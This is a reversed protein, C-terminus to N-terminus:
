RRSLSLVTNESLATGFFKVEDMLGSFYRKDSYNGAWARGIYLDGGNGLPVLHTTLRSQLKGNLFIQIESGTYVCTVQQWQASIVSAATSVVSYTSGTGVAFQLIGAGNMQLTWGTDRRKYWTPSSPEWGGHSKDLLCAYQQATDPEVADKFWLSVSFPYTANFISNHPVKIADSTARNFNFAKAVANRNLANIQVGGERVGLRIVNNEVTGACAAGGPWESLLVPRGVKVPLLRKPNETTMMDADAQAIGDNGTVLEPLFERQLHAYGFGDHAEPQSPVYCGPKVEYFLKQYVDQSLLIRDSYGKDVLHKIVGKEVIFQNHGDYGVHGFLDFEIYVGRRIMEEHFADNTAHSVNARFHSVVVRNLDVGVQECIDLVARRLNMGAQTYYPFTNGNLDREPAVDIDFHINMAVGTKIQALCSAILVKEENLTFNDSIGVEGIIGARIGSNGVGVLIDTLIEGEIQEITRTAMDDPHQTAKYYSSGMVIKIEKNHSKTRHWITRLANPYDCPLPYTENTRDWRMGRSTLEVLTRAGGGEAYQEVQCTAEGIDFLNNAAANDIHNMLLHEHPLTKGLTAPDVFGGVTIVKGASDGAYDSTATTDCTSDPLVGSGATSSLASTLASAIGLKFFSRRQM